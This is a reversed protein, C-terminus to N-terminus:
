AAPGVLGAEGIRFEEVAAGVPANVVDAVLDLVNKGGAVPQDGGTGTDQAVAGRLAARM